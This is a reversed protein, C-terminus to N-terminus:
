WNTRIPVIFKISKKIFNSFVILFDLLEDFLDPPTPIKPSKPTAKTTNFNIPYISQDHHHTVAGKQPANTNNM